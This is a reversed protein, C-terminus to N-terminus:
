TLGRKRDAADRANLKDTAERFAKLAEKLAQMNRETVLFMAGEKWYSTGYISVEHAANIVDQMAKLKDGLLDAPKV